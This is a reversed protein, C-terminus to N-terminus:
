AVGSDHQTGYVDHWEHQLCPRTVVSLPRIVPQCIESSQANVWKSPVTADMAIAWKSPVTADMAKAVAVHKVDYLVSAVRGPHPQQQQSQVQQLHQLTCIVTVTGVIIARVAVTLLVVSGVAKDYSRAPLQALYEPKVVSPQQQNIVAQTHGYNEHSAMCRTNFVGNQGHRSM